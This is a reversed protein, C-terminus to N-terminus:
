SKETSATTSPRKASALAVPQRASTRTSPVMATTILAMASRRAESNQSVSWEQGNVCNDVHKREGVGRTTTRPGRRRCWRLRQGTM